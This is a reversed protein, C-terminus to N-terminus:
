IKNKKISQKKSLENDLKTKSNLVLYKEIVEDIMKLEEIEYKSADKKNLLDNKIKIMDEFTLDKDYEELWGECSKIIHVYNHKESYYVAYDIYQVDQNQSVRFVENFSQKWYEKFAKAGVAQYYNKEKLTQEIPQDEFLKFYHEKDM